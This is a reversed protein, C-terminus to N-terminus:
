KPVGSPSFTDFAWAGFSLMSIAACGCAVRDLHLAISVITGAMAYIFAGKNLTYYSMKMRWNISILQAGRLM